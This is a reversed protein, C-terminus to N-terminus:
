LQDALRRAALQVAEWATAFPPAYSLDMGAVDDVTLGGWLAAAATDIRKAAGPGGVIQMGLLRRSGTEALVRTAIPAAEPMYGSATTGETVLSCAALGAAHAAAASLGTCAIELHQGGAAFRTIATGLVGGFRAAGGALDEGVVRGQKNAHTGLPMFVPRGTLRHLVECCDGAAWIGDAVQGGADPLYGGSDGLPLGAAAGLETAPRVGLGLVVVRAPYVRGDAAVVGSVAGSRGRTLARVGTRAEVRVGAQSMAASIRASMDPDLSSMVETRTLLVSDWGRRVLTEAMELGIYGGGVLVARRGDGPAAGARQAGDALLRTWVAGDHLNKVPHVGPILTGDPARAWDPIVAPAGTALVLQDFPLQCRTGNQSFHVTRHRLDLETAAAGLRLDIGLRRHEAATRAVLQQGDAVDGAIWYPIGCASYSTHGTSELVTVEVDRGRSRAGRLAQHAASMGAADAGIVAIREPAM